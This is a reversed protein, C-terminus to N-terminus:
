GALAMHVVIRYRASGPPHCAFITATPTPTQEIIRMEKPGVIETGTVSYVSRGMGDIEFIVEDGPSLQDLNRFPKSYTTRHGAFVANGNQGPFATGPWHSPGHNIYKMEIGHFVQHVLGIKPIAITGIPKIPGSAVRARTATAGPLGASRSAARIPAATTSTTPVQLQRYTVPTRNAAGVALDLYPADGSPKAADILVVGGLGLTLLGCIMVALLRTTDRHM